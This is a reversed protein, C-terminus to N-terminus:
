RGGLFGAIAEAARSAFDSKLATRVRGFQELQLERLVGHRLLMLVERGLNEPTAADQLLEPVRPTDSLFNPQSVRDIKLLGFQKLVFATTASTRYAVVMPRGVLCCELTATGSALLVVDAAAMAERSRGEYLRWQGGPHRALAAEFRQRLSPKAIPTVLTLGPVKKALWAGTAAFDDALYKLEANRSGPLVAVVPGPLPLGLAARAQAQSMSDDLEGALPHGVYAAAVRTKEYLKPEFPYMCLMLDVSEAIGHIRGPRWAWITPSVFHVTRIGQARLKKELGLNFDPADIGIFADPKDASFRELLRGRLAFISPLKPLVEAIGMVSLAEISEIPECGAEVMKPGAVGYFAAQPFKERLARILAAGLLDGSAEGAVLAFRM